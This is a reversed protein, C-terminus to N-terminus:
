WACARQALPLGVHAGFKALAFCGPDDLREVANELELERSQNAVQMVAEHDEAVVANRDDRPQAALRVFRLRVGHLGALVDGVETTMGRQRM